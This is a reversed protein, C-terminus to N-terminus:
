KMADWTGFLLRNDMGALAQGSVVITDRNSAGRPLVMSGFQFYNENWRDKPASLVEHWREADRSLLLKADRCPNIESPEVSTTIAYVSGFRCAHICSGDTEAVRRLKGSAKDLSMVANPAMETDTGYVLRDGLDFVCVARHTQDGKVVWELSDLEASMLGIGPEAEHDGALVWYKDLGSDYYLNHVHRIEGPAFTYAVDFTRAGDDSVFLRVGRRERNAGYEGWVIRDGPGRTLTMPPWCATAGDAVASPQMRQAGAPMFCVGEHNTAVLTGDGIRLAARVEVRLARSALRSVGAMRRMPSYPMTALHSWTAGDDRSAHLAYRQARLLTGDSEIQVARGTFRGTPKFGHIAVRPHITTM